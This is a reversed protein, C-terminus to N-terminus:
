TLALVRQALRWRDSERDIDAKRIVAHIDQKDPVSFRPWCTEALILGQYQENRSRSDEIASIITGADALSVDGQMLGLVLVRVLLSGNSFLRRVERAEFKERRAM